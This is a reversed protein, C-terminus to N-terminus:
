RMVRVRRHTAMTSEIVEVPRLEIHGVSEWDAVRTDITRDRRLAARTVKATSLGGAARMLSIIVCRGTRWRRIPFSLDPLSGM